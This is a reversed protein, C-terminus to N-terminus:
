ALEFLLGQASEPGTVLEVATTDTIALGDGDVLTESGCRLAGQTLQIWASAGAEISFERTQSAPLHFYTM